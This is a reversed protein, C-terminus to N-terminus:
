QGGFGMGVIGEATMGGDVWDTGRGLLREVYRAILDVEINVADGTRRESMTTVDLTHPILAVTFDRDAASAVTLSIGDVAVSGKEAIYPSLAEPVEVRFVANDGSEKREVVKGIGDVHGAVLHGGLRDMPRLSRELNVRSGNRLLSMTTRRLTEEVSGVTFGGSDFSVVTHCAGGVCISDGVSIGELVRGAAVSTQQYGSRKGISQIRGVEEVIGTFM